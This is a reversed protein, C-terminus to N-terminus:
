NAFGVHGQRHGPVESTLTLILIIYWHKWAWSGHDQIEV